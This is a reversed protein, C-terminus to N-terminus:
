PYSNTRSCDDDIVNWKPRNIRLTEVARKDIEVLLNCELGANDLGLALGGAGAFLEVVTYGSKKKSKLVKYGVHM